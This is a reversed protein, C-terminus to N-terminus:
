NWTVVLNTGVLQADYGQDRLTNHVYHVNVATQAGTAFSVTKLGTSAATLIGNAVTTKWLGQALSPANSFDSIQDADVFVDIGAM